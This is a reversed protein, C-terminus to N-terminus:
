EQGPQYETPESVVCLPEGYHAGVGPRGFSALESSSQRLERSRRPSEQPSRTLRGKLEEWKNSNNEKIAKDIEGLIMGNGEKSPKTYNYKLLM